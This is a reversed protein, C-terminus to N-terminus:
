SHIFKNKTWAPAPIYMTCEDKVAKFDFIEMFCYYPERPRSNTDACIHVYYLVRGLFRAKSLVSRHFGCNLLPIWAVRFQNCVTQKTKLHPLGNSSWHAVCVPSIPELEMWIVASVAQIMKFVWCNHSNFAINDNKHMDFWYLHCRAEIQSYHFFGGPPATM